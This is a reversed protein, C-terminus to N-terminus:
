HGTLIVTASINTCALSVLSVLKVLPIKQKASGNFAKTSLEEPAPIENYMWSMFLATTYEGQLTIDGIEEVLNRQLNDYQRRTDKIDAAPANRDLEDLILTQFNGVNTAM